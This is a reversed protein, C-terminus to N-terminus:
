ARTNARREPPSKGRGGCCLPYACAAMTTVKNGMAGRITTRRTPLSGGNDSTLVVLTNDELGTAKLASLVQGVGDDFHEVLAVNLARKEDM